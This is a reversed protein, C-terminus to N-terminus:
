KSGANTSKVSEEQRSVTQLALKAATRVHEACAAATAEADRAEASKVIREVEFITERLRKPNALTTARLLSIQARLRCILAEVTQNGAGELLVDYFRDKARLVSLTDAHAMASAKIETLTARLASIQEDSANEAFCRGALGELMERVAYIEAAQRKTISAVVWGTGPMSRVLGEAALEQLVERVTPRSVGAVRALKTEVLRDGPRLNMDAIANRLADSVQERITLSKREIPLNLVGLEASPDSSM